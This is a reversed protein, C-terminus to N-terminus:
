KLISMSPPTYSNQGNLKFRYRSSDGAPTKFQSVAVLFLSLRDELNSKVTLDIDFNYAGVQTQLGGQNHLSLMLDGKISGKIEDGDRGFKGDDIVIKGANMHGKIEVSSMKLDPVNIPGMATNITQSPLEFKDAQIVLEAEPQEALALDTLVTGEINLQGKVSLPLQVVDHLDQLNLHTAHIEIKQRDVGAESKSGPKMSIDIDGRFIGNALVSGGPTKTFLSGIAPSLTLEKAEVPGIMPSDVSVDSFKLGFPWLSVQLNSFQLFLQNQTLEAVKSSLLDSLDGFPFILATWLLISGFFVVIISKNSKLWRFANSIHKM